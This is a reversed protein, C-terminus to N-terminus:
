NKTLLEKLNIKEIITSKYQNECLYANAEFAERYKDMFFDLIEILDPYDIKVIENHKELNIKCQGLLNSIRKLVVNLFKM